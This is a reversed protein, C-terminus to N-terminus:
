TKNNVTTTTIVYCQLLNLWMHRLYLIADTVNVLESVTHEGKICLLAETYFSVPPVGLTLAEFGSTNTKSPVTPTKNESNIIFQM